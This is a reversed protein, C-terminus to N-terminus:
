RCAMAEPTEPDSIGEWVAVSAGPFDGSEDRAVAATTATKLVRAVAADVNIKVFGAPPAIWCKRGAKTVKTQTAMPQTMELDAMFRNIFVYTTLPSQFVEEHVAMRRAYWISWPTVAVRTMEEKALTCMAEMIWSRADQGPIMSIHETTQETELAWVSKAM